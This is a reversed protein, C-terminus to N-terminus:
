VQAKIVQEKSANNNSMQEHMARENRQVIDHLQNNRARMAELEQLM